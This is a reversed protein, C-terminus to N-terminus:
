LQTKVMGQIVPSDMKTHKDRGRNKKLSIM